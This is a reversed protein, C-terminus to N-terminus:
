MEAEVEAAVLSLLEAALVLCALPVRGQLLRVRVGLCRWALPQGCFAESQRGRAGRCSGENEEVKEVPIFVLSQRKVCQVSM